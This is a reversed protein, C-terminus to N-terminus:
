VPRGVEDIWHAGMKPTELAANLAVGGTMSMPPVSPEEPAAEAATGEVVLLVVTTFLRERGVPRELPAMAAATM